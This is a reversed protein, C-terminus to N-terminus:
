STTGIAEIAPQALARGYRHAGSSWVPCDDTIGAVAEGSVPCFHVGDPARVVNVPLGDANYGGECPESSLCPLTITYSDGDLVAAGADAYSVGDHVAALNRYLDNIEGGTASTPDFVPAGAFVVHTGVPAFTAIVKAADAAYHEAIAPGSAPVGDTGHMCPTLSNGSFEVVVMGPAMATADDAMQDFWDCIATGGFTRTYVDVHPLDAFAGTFSHRAEWALSDGYLVVVPRTLPGVPAPVAPSRVAVNDIPPNAPASSAPATSTTPAVTTPVATTTPALTTPAPTTSTPPAVTTPPALAAPAAAPPILAGPASSGPGPSPSGSVSILGFVLAIISAVAAM